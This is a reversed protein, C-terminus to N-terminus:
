TKLPYHNWKRKMEFSFLQANKGKMSLKKVKNQILKLTQALEKQVLIDGKKWPIEKTFATPHSNHKLFDERTENLLNAERETIAFGKQALDITPQILSVNTIERIKSAHLVDLFRVLVGSQWDETKHYILIPKEKKM